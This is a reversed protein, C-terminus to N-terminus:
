FSEGRRANKELLLWRPDRIANEREISRGLSTRMAADIEARQELAEEFRAAEQRGIFARLNFRTVWDIVEVVNWCKKPKGTMESPFDPEQIRRYVTARSWGTLIQIDRVSM